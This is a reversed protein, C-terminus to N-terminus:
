NRWLFSFKCPNPGSGDQGDMGTQADWRRVWFLLVKVLNRQAKFHTEHATNTRYTSSFRWKGHETVHKLTKYMCYMNTQYYMLVKQQVTSSLSATYPITIFSWCHLWINLFNWVKSRSCGLCSCGPLLRSDNGEHQSERIFQSLDPVNVCRIIGRDGITNPTITFM